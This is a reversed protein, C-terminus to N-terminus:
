DLSKSFRMVALTMAAAFFVGLIAFEKALEALEAGRLIVGRILRM